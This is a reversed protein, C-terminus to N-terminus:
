DESGLQMSEIGRQLFRRDSSAVTAIDDVVLRDMMVPQHSPM